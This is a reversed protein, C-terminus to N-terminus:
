RLWRKKLKSLSDNTIAGRISAMLNSFFALNHYTALTYALLENAKFLHHVYARSCNTCVYCGCDKDLPRADAKFASNTVRYRWRKRKRCESSFIYGVRALRTPLVCDFLDAGQGVGMFLDDVAGMGLLHVPKKEPLAAITWRLVNQTEKKPEGFISGIGYGAFPLSSIFAASQQRLEKYRGGQVIGFLAQEKRKKAAVCREAWRHTREMSARAAAEDAAFPLCEDLAFILDAGLKEQIRVSREPTFEHASRDIHSRFVIKEDSIDVLSKGKGNKGLSFLQFGGSDTMIPRNWGMFRHLGGHDAILEAGPRLFLHYTNMMLMPVGLEELQRATLAKVTAQTGVPVFAPTAVAGHPTKIISTRAKSAPDRAIIKFSLSRM